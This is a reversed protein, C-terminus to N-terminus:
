PVGFGRAETSGTGCTDSGAYESVDNVALIWSNRGKSMDELAVGSEVLVALERCTGYRACDMLKEVGIFLTSESM